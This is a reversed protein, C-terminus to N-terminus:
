MYSRGSTVKAAQIDEADPNKLLAIHQSDPTWEIFGMAVFKQLWGAMPWQGHKRKYTTANKIISQFNHLPPDYITHYQHYAVADCLGFPIEGQTARLAFNTDEAGYGAFDEDFGKIKLFNAKSVSFNLSWFETFSVDRLIKGEPIEPRHPHKEGVGERHAFDFSETEKKSLYRLDGMLLGNFGQQHVAYRSLLEPHPICDVDLFVLADSQANLAGYNRAAALNFGKAATAMEVEKIEFNEPFPNDLRTEEGMRVVVLENPLRTSHQLGRLLRALQEERNKVITIVSAM